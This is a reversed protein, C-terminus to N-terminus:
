YVHVKTLALAGQLPRRRGRLLKITIEIGATILDAGDLDTEECSDDPPVVLGAEVRLILDKIGCRAPNRNYAIWLDLNGFVEPSPNTLQHVM